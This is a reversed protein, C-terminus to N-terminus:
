PASDDVMTSDIRLREPRPWTRGVGFRGREDKAVEAMAVEPDHTFFLRGGSTCLEELLTTKEDIIKEPYRDYGMTIPAHVWPQGPILDGAYVLPGDSTEIRALLLGPTHGESRVFRYGDGLVSSHEGEVLELRGTNEILPQLEPIFSAKDRVHPELARAWADKGVVYHANPFVLAPAKGDEFPTLLGGAHDFHLHSLVVVDISDPTVGLAALEAVLRHDEEVVGFRERMKPPFFTGIGAEFLVRRSLEGQDDHEEILMARCALDIRNQEDASAWRQWLAKPANGFM